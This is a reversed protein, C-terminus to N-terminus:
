RQARTAEAIISTIVQNLDTVEVTRFSLQGATWGATQLASDLRQFARQRKEADDENGKNCIIVGVLKVLPCETASSGVMAKLKEELDPRRHQLRLSSLARGVTISLREQIKGDFLKGFDHILASNNGTILNAGHGETAKVEIVFLTSADEALALIDIGDSSSGKWPIDANACWTMARNYLLWHREGLDWVSFEGLNGQLNSSLEPSTRPPQAAHARLAASLVLSLENDDISIERLIKPDENRKLSKTYPM